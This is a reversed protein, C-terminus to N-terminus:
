ELGGGSIRRGKVSAAIDVSVNSSPHSPSHIRSSQPMRLFVSCRFRFFVGKWTKRSKPPNDTNPQPLPMILTPYPCSPTRVSYPPNHISNGPFQESLRLLHSLSLFALIYLLFHSSTQFPKRLPSLRPIAPPSISKAYCDPCLVRDSMQIMRGYAESGFRDIFCKTCFHTDCCECEWMTGHIDDSEEWYEEFGCLHLHGQYCQM